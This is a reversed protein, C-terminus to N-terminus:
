GFHCEVGVTRGGEVEGWADPADCPKADGIDARMRAESGWADGSDCAKPSDWEASTCQTPGLRDECDSAIVCNVIASCDPDTVAEVAHQLAIGWLDDRACAPLPALTLAGAM